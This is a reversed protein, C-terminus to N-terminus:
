HARELPQGVWQEMLPTLQDYALQMLEESIPSYRLDPTRSRVSSIGAIVDAQYKEDRQVEKQVPEFTMAQYERELVNQLHQPTTLLQFPQPAFRPLLVM